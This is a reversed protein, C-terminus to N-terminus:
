YVQDAEGWDHPGHLRFAFGTHLPNTSASSILNISFIKFSQTSFFFVCLFFRKNVVFVCCCFKYCNQQSCFCCCCCTYCNQTVQVLGQETMDPVVFSGRMLM